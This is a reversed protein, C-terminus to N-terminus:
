GNFHLGNASHKSVTWCDDSTVSMHRSGIASLTLGHWLTIQRILDDNGLVRLSRIISCLFKYNGSIFQVLLPLSLALWQKQPHRTHYHPSLEIGTPRPRYTQVTAMLLKYDASAVHLQVHSRAVQYATLRDALWHVTFHGNTVNKVNIAKVLKSTVCIPRIYWHMYIIKPPEFFLLYGETFNGHFRANKALFRRSIQCKPFFTLFHAYLKLPRKIVWTKLVCNGFTLVPFTVLM